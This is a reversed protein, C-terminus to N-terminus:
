NNIQSKLQEIEASLEKVANVLYWTVNDPNVTYQGTTSQTVVDPLGEQIEQAIVGLQKGEKDIVGISDPNVGENFETYDIEDRERYEFNRVRISNIKNLGDNNDVINKKIRRDSTTSWSSNNAGNYAGSTGGAMFTQSGKGAVPGVVTEYTIDAASVNGHIIINQNGTTLTDGSSYHGVVLNSHGTTLNLGARNGILTNNFATTADEGALYGVFTNDAGTLNTGASAGIMTNANATTATDLANHGIATNNNGTTTLRLSNGGVSTNKDGTTITTGADYGILTNDTADTGSFADGANTGVTTNRVSDSNGGLQGYVYNATVIGANIVKENNSDAAIQSNTTGFGVNGVNDITVFETDNTFFSLNQTRPSGMSVGTGAQFTAATVIGTVAISDFSIDDLPTTLTSVGTITGNGELIIAM